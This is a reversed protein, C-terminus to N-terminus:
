PAGRSLTVSLNPHNDKCGSIVAIFDGSEALKTGSRSATRSKELKTGGGPEM